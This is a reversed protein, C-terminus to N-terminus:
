DVGFYFARLQLAQLAYLPLVLRHVLLSFAYFSFPFHMFHPAIGFQSGAIVFLLLIFGFRGFGSGGPLVPLMKLCIFGYGSSMDGAGKSRSVVIIALRLVMLPNRVIQLARNPEASFQNLAPRRYQHGIADGSTALM